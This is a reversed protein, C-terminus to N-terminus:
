KIEEVIESSEWLELVYENIHRVLTLDSVFIHLVGHGKSIALDIANLAERMSEPRSYAGQGFDTKGFHRLGHLKVNIM